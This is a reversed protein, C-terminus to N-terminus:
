DSIRRQAACVARERVAEADNPRLILVQEWELLARSLRQHQQCWRALSRHNEPDNRNTGAAIALRNFEADEARGKEGAELLRKGRETDGRRALLRGLNITLKPQNPRAAYLTEWHHLAGAEDGLTLRAKGLLFHVSLDDPALKQYTEAADLGAQIEAPNPKGPRSLAREVLGEARAFLLGPHSPHARLADEVTKLADDYHRHELRNQFLLLSINPDDPRLRDAEELEAEAEDRAGIQDNLLALALHPEAADPAIRRAQAIHKQCDAQWGLQAELAALRMVASLDNPDLRFARQANALARDVWGADQFLGALTAALAPDNASASDRQATAEVEEALKAAARSDGRSLLARAADLRANLDTAPATQLRAEADKAQKQQAAVEGLRMEQIRTEEQMRRTKEWQQRQWPLTLLFALAALGLLLFLRRSTPPAPPRHPTAASRM